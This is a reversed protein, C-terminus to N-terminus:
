VRNKEYTEKIIDASKNKIVNMIYGFIAPFITGAILYVWWLKEPYSCVWKGIIEPNKEYTVFCYIGDILKITIFHLAMIAFSHKGLFAIFKNFYQIKETIKSLYMCVYIGIFSLVYLWALGPYINASLEVQFGTYKVFVFILGAFFLALQWKLYKSLDPGVSKRLYYAVLCVPLMLFANHASFIMHNKHFAAMLALMLGILFTNKIYKRSKGPALYSCRNSFCVCLALASCAIMNPLIFWMAGGFRESCIFVFSAAIASLMEGISNYPEIGYSLAFKIGVNHVLILLVSYFVYKTWNNKFLNGVYEFPKNLYKKENYFYASVFFFLALHYTIFM